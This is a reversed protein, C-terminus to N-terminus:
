RQNGIWRWKGDSEKAIHQIVLPTRYDKRDVYGDIIARDGDREFSTLVINFHEFDASGFAQSVFSILDSKSRGNHSYSESYNKKLAELDKTKFCRVQSELLQQVGAPVEVRKAQEHSNRLKKPPVITQAILREREASEPVEVHVIRLFEAIKGRPQGQSDVLYRRSLQQPGLDSLLALGRHNVFSELNQPAIGFVYPEGQFAVWFVTQRSGYASYDAGRIVDELMYDFVLQSGPASNEAIFRLTNDVGSESIFYTVGEWVYFTKKNRSFDAKALVEDLTQTNFDIPVYSVWEPRSNLITEVRNQKDQSTAPLDVEFFRVEPYQEHFRYARSDFGAGLIVVQTAGDDLAQKLLNDMHHTRANVYYFVGTDQVDISIKAAEFKLGLGPIIGVMAPNVFDRAMYDPNRTKPDPDLAAISRFACVAEATASIKGEEVAIAPLSSFLAFSIFFFSAYWSTILKMDVEKMPNFSHMVLFFHVNVLILLTNYV